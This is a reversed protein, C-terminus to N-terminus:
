SRLKRNKKLGERETAGAEHDSYLADPWAELPRGELRFCRDFNVRLATNKVEGM